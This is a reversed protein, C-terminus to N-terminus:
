TVEQVLEKWLTKVKRDTNPNNVYEGWSAIFDDIEIQTLSAFMSSLWNNIPIFIYKLQGHELIGMSKDRLMEVEPHFDELRSIVTIINTSLKLDGLDIYDFVSQSSEHLRNSDFKKVTIEIIHTIENSEVVLIDGPKKSTTNTTSSSDDAGLVIVETKSKHISELLYGCVRQPTNGRDPVESILRNFSKALWFPNRIEPAEVLMEKVESARQLFSSVLLQLYNNLEKESLKEIRSVIEVVKEAIHLPRRQAAWSKDLRSTAKAINLPGSKRHPVAHFIFFDRIPGEYLARPNCDYFAKSAKYKPDILMAVVVVIIVERYGFVDSNFIENTTNILEEGLKEIPSRTLAAEELMQKIKKNRDATTM